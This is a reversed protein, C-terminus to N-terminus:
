KELALREQEVSASIRKPILPKILTKRPKTKLFPFLELNEKMRDEQNTYQTTGVLVERHLNYLEQEKQHSEM